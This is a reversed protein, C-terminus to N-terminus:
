PRARGPPSASPWARWCASSAERYLVRGILRPASEGLAMGRVAVALAQAGANGGMGSVIGMYAALAPLVAVVDNFWSVVWAALFATALNVELWWIRKRFSFQWPSLLREEAGAGFM